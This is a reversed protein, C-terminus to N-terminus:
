YHPPKQHDAEAIGHMRIQQELKQVTGELVSIRTEQATVVENLQDVLHEAFALKTEIEILRDNM